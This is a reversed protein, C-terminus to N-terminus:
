YIRSPRPRARNQRRSPMRGTLAMWSFCASAGAGALGLGVQADVMAHRASGRVQEEEQSDAAGQGSGAAAQASAPAPAAGAVPAVPPVAAPSGVQSPSQGPAPAHGPALSPAQAPVPAPAAGPAPAPSPNPASALSPASGPSPSPSPSGTGGPPAVEPPVSDQKPPGVGPDNGGTDPVVTEPAVYTYVVDSPLSGVGAAVVHVVVAEPVAHPPAVAVVETDSRTTIRGESAGFRVTSATALGKGAITVENGGATPGTPPFLGSIVPHYTFVDADPPLPVSPVLTGEPVPPGPDVRVRVRVQGPEHAPSTATIAAPQGPAPAAGAAFTAPADGFSVSRVCEAAFSGGIVVNTGGTVPGARASLSAVTAPGPSTYTFTTAPTTVGATVTVPVEGAAHRPSKVTIATGAENVTFDARPISMDGFNVFSANEFGSGSIVVERGGCTAGTGPVLGTVQVLPGPYLAAAGGTPIVGPPGPDPGEWGGLALVKGCNAGCREPRGEVAVVDDYRSAGGEPPTDIPPLDAIRRWSLTAPDFLSAVLPGISPGSGGGASLVAGDPMLAAPGCRPVEPCKGVVQWTGAPRGTGPDVPGGAPDFLVPDPREGMSGGVLVRGDELRIAWKPSRQEHPLDAAQSWTRAVPDFLRAIKATTAGSGGAVLVRGDDLLASTAGVIGDGPISETMILSNTGPDYLEATRRLNADNANAPANSDYIGGAILVQGCPYDEPPPRPTQRCLPPDLLTAVYSHARHHGSDPVETWRDEGPSYRLKPTASAGRANFLVLADGDALPVIPMHFGVRSTTMTETPYSTPTWRNAGPDYLAFCLAYHRQRALPDPCDRDADGGRLFALVKGGALQAATLVRRPPPAGRRWDQEAQDQSAPAPPVLSTVLAATGALTVFFAQARLRRSATLGNM